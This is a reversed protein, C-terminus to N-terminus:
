ETLLQESGGALAIRIAESEEPSLELEGRGAHVQKAYLRAQDRHHISSLVVGSRSADLLAISTSQRGSMEGYADYRILSRYAIAGDLRTEAAGMRQELRAAVDQVYDNLAEFQGRLTAAHSVLDERRDGLITRQDARVRRLRFALALSTLLAVVAVGGAAIAVLGATSTLNHM